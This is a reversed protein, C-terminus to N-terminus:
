KTTKQQEVRKRRIEKPDATLSRYIELRDTDTLSDTVPKISKISSM